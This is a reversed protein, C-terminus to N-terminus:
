FYFEDQEYTEVSGNVSSGCLAFIETFVISFVEPAVYSNGVAQYCNRNPNM